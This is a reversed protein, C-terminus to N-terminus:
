QRGSEARDRELLEPGLLLQTAYRVGFGTFDTPVHALGGKRNSASLDVHVWPIAAPVFRNLFRAALIHDGKGDALCQMVDAVPTDLEADYDEEM